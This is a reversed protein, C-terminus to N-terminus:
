NGMKTYRNSIFHHSGIGDSPLTTTTMPMHHENISVRDKESNASHMLSKFEENENMSNSSYKLSDKIM